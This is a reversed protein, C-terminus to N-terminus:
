ITRPKSTVLGSSCKPQTQCSRKGAARFCARLSPLTRFCPGCPSASARPWAWLMKSRKLAGLQAFEDMMMLVPVGKEDRLLAALASSIILRFWKGCVDLYELPLVLYVTMPRKKLDSFRFDSGSLSNAIAANGLFRLQTQATSVIGNLEKNTPADAAAFRGLKQRIFPDPSKMAERCFGFIDGSIVRAVAALNKDAAEGHKALTMIAGSVLQRASETWHNTDAGDQWILGEAQKDADAGFSDSSPELSAVPNFKALILGAFQKLWLGFPNVVIVDGFQQCLHGTVSALEGKPDVVICSGACEMLAPILIDRGKGARTPAVTILHGAGSPYRLPRGSEASLGIRIGLRKQPAKGRGSFLLPLVLVVIAANIGIWESLTM